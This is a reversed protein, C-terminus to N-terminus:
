SLLVCLCDGREFWAPLCTTPSLFSRSTAGPLVMLLCSFSVDVHSHVPYIYFPVAEFSVPPNSVEMIKEYYVDKRRVPRRGLWV